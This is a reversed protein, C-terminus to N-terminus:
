LVYRIEWLEVDEGRDYGKLYQPIQTVDVRKGVFSRKEQEGTGDEKVYSRFCTYGNAVVKLDDLSFNYRKELGLYLVKDCGFSMVRRLMSFLAITLDDSYIVDAAFIFSACKVQEFDQKSWCFNEPDRCDGRNDEIPWDSMWNLERVNVVTHPHFLSSNMDLNKACNALIADGHDTLFVAKAVRALLIGLLGTGAGLELSVIGHFESSTCIKHLVFESLVLQAKWVQLGVHRLNSTISHQITVTFSPSSYNRRPLLLDGDNDLSSHDNSPFSFIFRSLFPENTAAPPPCGLHIESMVEIEEM